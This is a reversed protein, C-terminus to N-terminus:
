TFPTAQAFLSPLAEFSVRGLQLAGEPLDLPESPGAVLLRARRERARLRRFAELLVPGGKRAFAIGVYLITFGDDARPLVATVNAGAGVAHVREEPVGYHERVSSATRASFTCVGAAELYARRERRFWGAPFRRPLRTSDGTAALRSTYDLLLVYPLGPRAGPTFMAGNQLVVDPAPDLAALRRAAARSHVDFACPTNWRRAVAERGYHFAASSLNAVLPLSLRRRGAADRPELDGTADVPVVRHGREELARAVSGSVGSQPGYQLYAIRLPPAFSAVM